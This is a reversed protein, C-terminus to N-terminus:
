IWTSKVSESWTYEVGLEKEARLLAVHIQNVWPEEIPTEFIGAVKLTEAQASVPTLLMGAAVLLTGFVLTIARKIHKSIM